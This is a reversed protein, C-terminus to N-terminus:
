CARPIYLYEIFSLVPANNTLPPNLSLAPGSNSHIPRVNSCVNSGDLKSPGDASRCQERLYFVIVTETESDERKQTPKSSKLSRPTHTCPNCRPTERRFELRM